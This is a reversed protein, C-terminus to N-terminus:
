GSVCRSSTKRFRASPRIEGTRKLRDFELESKLKTADGTRCLTREKEMGASQQQLVDGDSIEDPNVQQFEAL